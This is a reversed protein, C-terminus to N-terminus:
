SSARSRRVDFFEGRGVDGDGVDDAVNVWNAGCATAAVEGVFEGNMVAKQGRSDRCDEGDVLKGVEGSFNLYAEEVDHLLAVDLNLAVREAKREVHKEDEGCIRLSCRARFIM